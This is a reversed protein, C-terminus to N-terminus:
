YRSVLQFFFTNGRDFRTVRNTDLEVVYIELGDSTVAIDHPRGMPGNPAFESVVKDSKLDIIFGRNPTDLSDPGNVLFLKEQAYDVSYIAGGILDSSYQKHFSGNAAHFCLIRGNERDAVYLYGFEEALALAHPVAFADPSLNVELFFFFYHTSFKLDM